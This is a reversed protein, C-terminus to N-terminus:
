EGERQDGKLVNRVAVLKKTSPESQFTAKKKPIIPVDIWRMNPYLSSKDTRDM